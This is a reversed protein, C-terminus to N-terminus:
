YCSLDVKDPPQKWALTCIIFNKPKDLANFAAQATYGTTLIDDVFIVTENNLKKLSTLKKQSREIRNKRKQPQSSFDYKLIPSSQEGFCSALAEAFFSAHDKKLPPRAPAPIFVPKKITKWAKTYVFRSFSEKAMEKMLPKPSAGKLSEMFRKLLYFNSEKWDFLRLHVFKRQARCVSSYPLYEERLKKFCYSCLWNIPPVMSKCVACFRFINLIM